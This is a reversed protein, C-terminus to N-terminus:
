TIRRRGHANLSSRAITQKTRITQKKIAPEPTSNVQKDCISDFTRYHVPNGSNGATVKVVFFLEDVNESGQPERDASDLKVKM